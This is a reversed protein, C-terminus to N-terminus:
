AGAAGARAGGPVRPAAAAHCPSARVDRKGGEGTFVGHRRGTACQDHGTRPRSHARCVECREPDWPVAQGGPARSSAQVEATSEAGDQLVKGVLRLDNEALLKGPKWFPHHRPPMEWWAGAAARRRAEAAAGRPRATWRLRSRRDPSAATSA